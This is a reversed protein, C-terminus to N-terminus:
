KILKNLEINLISFIDERFKERKINEKDGFYKIKNKIKEIKQGDNIENQKITNYIIIMQENIDENINNFYNNQKNTYINLKNLQQNINNLNNDLMIKIDSSLKNQENNEIKNLINERKINLNRDFSKKDNIFENIYFNKVKKINDMMFFTCDSESKINKEIIFQLKELTKKLINFKKNLIDKKNEENLCSNKTYNLASRNSEINEEIYKNHSIIFSKNRKQKEIYKESIIKEFNKRTTKHKDKTKM